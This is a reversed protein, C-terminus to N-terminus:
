LTRLMNQLHVHCTCLRSVLYSLVYLVLYISCTHGVLLCVSFFFFCASCRLTENMRCQWTARRLLKSAFAAVRSSFNLVIVIHVFRAFTKTRIVFTHIFRFFFLGCGSCVDDFRRFVSAPTVGCENQFYIFVVNCFLIYCCMAFVSSFICAFM